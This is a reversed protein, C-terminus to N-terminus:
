NTTYILIEVFEIIGSLLKKPFISILLTGERLKTLGHYVRYFRGSTEHVEGLGVDNVATLPSQRRRCQSFLIFRKNLSFIPLIVM